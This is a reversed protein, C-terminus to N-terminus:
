IIFYFIKFSIEEKFNYKSSNSTRVPIISVVKDSSELNAQSESRPSTTWPGLAAEFMM